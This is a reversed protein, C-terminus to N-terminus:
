DVRAVMLRLDLLCAGGDRRRLRVQACRPRLHRQRTLPRARRDLLHPRVELPCEDRHTAALRRDRLGACPELRPPRRGVRHAGVDDARLARLTLRTALQLAEPLEELTLQDRPAVEVRSLRRVLCSAFASRASASSWSFYVSTRAGISPTTEFRETSTPCTAWIPWGSRAITGSWSTQTSAFKLSVWTARMRGPMGASILTSPRGPRA